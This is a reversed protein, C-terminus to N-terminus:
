REREAETKEEGLVGSDRETQRQRDTETQRDTVREKGMGVDDRFGNKRQMPMMGADTDADDSAASAEHDEREDYEVSRSEMRMM